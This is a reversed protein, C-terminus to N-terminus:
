NSKEELCFLQNPYLNHEPCKINITVYLDITEKAHAKREENNHVSKFCTDCYYSMCKYCICTADNLCIECKVIKSKDKM